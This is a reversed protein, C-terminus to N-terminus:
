MIILQVREQRAGTNRIRVRFEGNRRPLVEFGEHSALRDKAIVDGGEGRVEVELLTGRSAVVRVWVRDRGALPVEIDRSAHPALNVLHFGSGGLPAAAATGSFAFAISFAVSVALKRITMVRWDTPAFHAGTVRPAQRRAGLDAPATAAKESRFNMKSIVAFCRKGGAFM